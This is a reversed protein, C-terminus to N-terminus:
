PRSFTSNGDQGTRAKWQAFDLAEGNFNAFISSSSTYANNGYTGFQAVPKGAAETGLRYTEEGNTSSFENGSVANNRVSSTSSSEWMQIHSQRNKSLKNGTLSNNFGNHIFVGNASGTITNGAVTVGNASEDLFVGWALQHPWGVNKITNQEIRTGLPQKDPASTYIGGCDTLVSCAGDVTNGSVTANRYARIGIYGSNTVSNNSVTSGQSLTLNIAARANVPMGTVGSADIRSNRVTEGGGGWRVSIADHRSQRISSGDVLLATGGSNLIGNQSSNVIDTNTVSLNLADPANIGNAAGYISVGDISISKSAAADIGHKDPSAWARGEPSQGDATWLYIRGDSYAWEGPEDLMWLKGEVYFNPTGALGFGGYNPNDSAALTMVGGSYGTVKRAEIAWDYARFILTAGALDGNPMAYSLSSASSGSAKAWTQARSPWHALAVPQGDVHVQAPAFAVPASFINGQHRTWGSIAQGPSLIAKGCDGATKVTVNSKGKLDLTGQYTRGCQLEVTSGNAVAAPM